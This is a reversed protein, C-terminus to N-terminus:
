NNKVFRNHIFREYKKTIEFAAYDTSYGNVIKESINDITTEFYLGYKSEIRVLLQDNDNITCRAKGWVREKLKQWVNTSFIYEYDMM